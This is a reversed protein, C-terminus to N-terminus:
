KRWGTRNPPREGDLRIDPSAAGIQAALGALAVAADARDSTGSSMASGVVRLRM